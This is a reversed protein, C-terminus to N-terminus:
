LLDTKYVKLKNLYSLFILSFWLIPSFRNITFVPGGISSGILLILIFIFLLKEKKYLDKLSLASFLININIYIYILLGILGSTFVIELIANDLVVKESIGYGILFMDNYVLSFKELVDTESGFRNGSFLYILDNLSNIGLGELSYLHLIKDFGPWIYNIQDTLLYIIGFVAISGYVINIKNRVLIFAYIVGVIAAGVIFIKSISLSGGIILLLLLIYKFLYKLRYKNNCYIWSLLGFSYSIGADMPQEFVGMHRWGSRAVWSYSRGHYTTNFNQYLWEIEYFIECIAIISNLSLLIIFLGLSKFLYSEIEIDSKGKIVFMAILIIAVIQIYNELSALM